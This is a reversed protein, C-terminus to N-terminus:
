ATFVWATLATIYSTSSTLATFTVNGSANATKSLAAKHMGVGTGRATGDITPKASANSTAWAVVVTYKAGATLGTITKTAASTTLGTVDVVKVLRGATPVAAAAADAYAKTAADTGDTPANVRLHDCGTLDITRTGDKAIGLLAYVWRQVGACVRTVVGSKLSVSDDAGHAYEDYAILANNADRAERVTATEAAAPAASLDISECVTSVPMRFTQAAAWTHAEDETFARKVEAWFANVWATNAAAKSSDEADGVTPVLPPVTFTKAGTVTQTETRSVYASVDADYAQGTQAVEVVLDGYENASVTVPYWMDDAENHLMTSAGPAGKLTALWDDETGVYGRELAIEYASKGREGQDGKAGDTGREGQPGRMTYAPGCDAAAWLPNWVVALDGECVTAEETFAAGDCTGGRVFCHFPRAEHPDRAFEDRLAETDFAITQAERWAGAEEDYEPVSKALCTLGDDSMVYAAYRTGEEGGLLTLSYTNGAFPLLRGFSVTGRSPDLTWSLTQLAM